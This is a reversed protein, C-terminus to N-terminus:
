CLKYLKHESDKITPLQNIVNSHNSVKTNQIYWGEHKKKNTELSKKPWTPVVVFDVFTSVSKISLSQIKM